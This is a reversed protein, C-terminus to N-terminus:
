RATSRALRMTAAAGLPMFPIIKQWIGLNLWLFSCSVLISLTGAIENQLHRGSFFGQETPLM